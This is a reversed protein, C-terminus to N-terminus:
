IEGSRSLFDKKFVSKNVIFRSRQGSWLRIMESALKKPSNHFADNSGGAMHPTITVNDLRVLPYDKGPPEADFVDLAAGAIKKDKLANYLAKEDVVSSRSTNIIYATPKMKAILTGDILRETEKTARVHISVFDSNEVLEKLSVMEVDLPPDKIYPDYGLIKMDFGGLRKVVKIGIEGLGIIGATKGPLDPINGSNSYERLWKGKKLAAHGKAINRCESILLGVTFDAVADANRGPTNYVLIGEETAYQLNINKIGSRLVGIIKLNKCKDIVNKTIPCFQTIIIDADKVADLIYAPPEYAKSDGHEVLHNVKQLEQFGKLEWDVVCVEVGRERFEHFGSLIYNKPIFLDGIGVLKM